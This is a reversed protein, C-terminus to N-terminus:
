IKFLKRANETTIKAIEEYSKDKIQAIREVVYKVYLPENRGEVPSPTLYPCDTEILIRELPTKRIVEDLDLKFIIGNFGLYFGMELYRQAQEWNGTFCHVVGSINQENELIQILDNHAMRCHSIIPLNLEKALRLQELFSQKQREKFETLKSKSKPKYYYDLGIEGIAVVKSSKALEEIQTSRSDLNEGLALGKYREYDFVEERTDFVVEEGYIKTELIGDALHVPHLGIAAYVGRGYKEAIRVARRSTSFQSGVNIMWVNNDLSRRIVESSDDKYANFNVHSHTDILMFRLELKDSNWCFFFAM